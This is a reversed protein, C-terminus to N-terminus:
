VQKVAFTGFTQWDDSGVTVVTEDPLQGRGFIQAMLPHEGLVTYRGTSRRLSLMPRHLVINQSLASRSALWLRGVPPFQPAVSIDGYLPSGAAGWGNAIYETKRNNGTATLACVTWQATGSGVGPNEAFVMTGGGIAAPMNAVNYFPAPPNIGQGFDTATGFNDPNYLSASCCIYPGGTFAGQKVLSMGFSLYNYNTGRKLVMVINDDGADSYFFYKIGSGDCAIGGGLISSADLSMTHGFIFQWGGASIANDVDVGLTAGTTTIVLGSFAAPQSIPLTLGDSIYFLLFGPQTLSGTRYVTSLIGVAITAFNIPKNSVAFTWPAALGSLWSAFDNRLADVTAATGSTFAM